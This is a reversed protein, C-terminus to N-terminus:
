LILSLEVTYTDTEDRIDLNYKGPYLLDLRRKVNNLGIGGVADRNNNHKKNQIYFHLHADDIDILLRIPSRPMNAVGHKFANEIFAILMLPVVQQDEVKGTIKFDIFAKNGFRIKQLDIYNQLYQLEKNLGVKNDNCEYLMYRMIESLKLIAEPTTESRQYALSYISNLSNFLFHPNIQSKLFALEASLRQNELDRQIRENLFWDVTFKLVSSLFLFTLSTFISSVFYSGFGVVHGKMRMLVYQKFVLGVGYKGLGYVVVAIAISLTFLGYRKKDLFRPIMVLYNLYFLSINIIGYLVIIVLLDNISLKSNNRAIALCFLLIFVWFFAHWFIQWRQKM